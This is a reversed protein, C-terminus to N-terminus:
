ISQIQTSKIFIKTNNIKGIDRSPNKKILKEKHFTEFIQSWFLKCNKQEAYKIDFSILDLRRFHSFESASCM